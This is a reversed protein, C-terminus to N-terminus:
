TGEGRVRAESRRSAKMAPTIIALLKLRDAEGPMVSGPTFAPEVIPIERGHRFVVRNGPESPLDIGRLTRLPEARTGTFDRLETQLASAIQM